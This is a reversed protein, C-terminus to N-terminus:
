AWNYSPIGLDLDKGIGIPKDAFVPAQTPAPLRTWAQNNSSKAQDFAVDMGVAAQQEASRLGANAQATAFGEQREADLALLGISQGTAGSALVKGQAGISKAYNSQAKFAAQQRAEQLKAQEQVYTKNVSTNNNQIQQEYARRSAIEQNIKGQHDAVIQRNQQHAQQQAQQYQLDMQQQAQDAQMQMQQSSQAIGAVTGVASVILGLVPLCM